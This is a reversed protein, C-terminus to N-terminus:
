HSPFETSFAQNMDFNAQCSQNEKSIVPNGGAGSFFDQNLIKKFYPKDSQVVAFILYYHQEAAEFL